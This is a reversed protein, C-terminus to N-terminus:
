DVRAHDSEARRRRRWICSCQWSRIKESDQAQKEGQREVTQALAGVTDKVSALDQKVENIEAAQREGAEVKRKELDIAERRFGADQERAARAEEITEAHQRQGAAISEVHGRENHSRANKPRRAPPKSCLLRTSRARKRRITERAESLSIRLRRTAAPHPLRVQM